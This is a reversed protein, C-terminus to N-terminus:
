HQIKHRGDICTFYSLFLVTESGLKKFYPLELGIKKKGLSLAFIINFM